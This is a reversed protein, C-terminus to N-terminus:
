GTTHPQFGSLFKAQFTPATLLSATVDEDFVTPCCVATGVARHFSGNDRKIPVFNRVAPKSSIPIKSRSRVKEKERKRKTREDRRERNGSWGALAYYIIMFEHVLVHSRLYGIDNGQLPRRREPSKKEYAQERTVRMSMKGDLRSLGLPELTYSVKVFILVRRIIDNLIHHHPFGGCSRQCSLEHYINAEVAPGRIFLHSKCANCSLQLAVALLLRTKSIADPARELLRELTPKSGIKDWDCQGGPPEPKFHDSHISPLATLTDNEFPIQIKNNERSLINDSLETVTANSALSHSNSLLKALMRLIWPSSEPPLYQRKVGLALVSDSNTPSYSLHHCCVEAVLRLFINRPCESDVKITFVIRKEIGIGICIGIDIKTREQANM